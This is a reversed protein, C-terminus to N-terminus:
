KKSSAAKKKAAPKKAAPKKTTTKKASTKKKPTVKKTVTKKTAKTAKTTKSTTKVVEGTSALKVLKNLQTKLRAVKNKHILKSKFAKDVASYAKGLNEATPSKKLKDIMTKMMSKVRSNVVAKRKSVRLAKKANQLIPM